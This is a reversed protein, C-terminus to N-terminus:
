FVSYSIRMLSQLESTHAESRRPPSEGDGQAPGTPAVRLEMGKAYFKTGKAMRDFGGNASVTEITDGIKVIGRSPEESAADGQSRCRTTYPVLTHTRHSRPPPRIMLFFFYFM